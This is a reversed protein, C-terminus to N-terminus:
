DNDKTVPKYWEIEGSALAEEFTGLKPKEGGYEEYWSSPRLPNENKTVSEVDVVTEEGERLKRAVIVLRYNNLEYSCTSITLLQDEENIDVTDIQYISRAKLQYVFNLFESSDRFESKTFDFLEETKSSGNTVFVSFIKWKAKEYLTHFTIVPREKYYDIYKKFNRLRHFMYDEKVNHGHIVLNQTNREISSKYNLFLSGAKRKERNIDRTLYYEEDEPNQLVPYDINSNPITLWGKVDENIELLEKFDELVIPAESSEAQVTDYGKQDKDVALVQENELNSGQDKENVSIVAETVKASIAPSAAPTDSNDADTQYYLEKALDIAKRTKYPEIFVENILLATFILFFIFCVIRVITIIRNYANINKTSKPKAIDSSTAEIDVTESLSQQELELATDQNDPDVM